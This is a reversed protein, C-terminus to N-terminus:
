KFVSCVAALSGGFYSSLSVWMETLLLLLLVPLQSVTHHPWSAWAGDRSPSLPEALVPGGPGPGGPGPGCGEGAPGM